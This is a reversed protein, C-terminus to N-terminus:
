IGLLSRNRRFNSALDNLAGATVNGASKIAELETKQKDKLFTLEEKAVKENQKKTEESMDAFLGKFLGILTGAIAGFPGLVAAGIMGMMMADQGANAMQTGMVVGGVENRAAEFDKRKM